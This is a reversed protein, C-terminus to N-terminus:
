LAGSRLARAFQGYHRRFDGRADNGEYLITQRSKLPVPFRRVGCDPARMAVIKSRHLTSLPIRKVSANRDPKCLKVPGQGIALIADPVPFDSAFIGAAIERM